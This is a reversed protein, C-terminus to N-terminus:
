EDVCAGLEGGVGLKWEKREEPKGLWWVYVPGEPRPFVDM